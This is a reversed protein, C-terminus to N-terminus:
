GLRIRPDIIAYLIDVFLNILVYGAAALMVVTATIAFDNNYIGEVALRGIGPWAFVRENVVSGTILGALLLGAFTLPPIIANKLAHKWIVISNTVGKARALKVYESDLIELMASRVLRLLAAAPGTGLSIAPLVYHQWGGRRGAPLLDLQVAFVLILMIGIWFAPLAQGFLAFTRGLYDLFTGRRVASLIGLPVGILIAGFFGVATLQLTAPIREVVVELANRKHWLSKGFDGKLMNGFWISYQIWLPKDLGMQKGWEEYQEASAYEDLYLDRPDGQMRSLAFVFVSVGILILILYVVRIFIFRVM